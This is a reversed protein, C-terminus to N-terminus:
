HVFVAQKRSYECTYSGHFIPSVTQGYLALEALNVCESM